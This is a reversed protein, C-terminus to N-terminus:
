EHQERRLGNWVQEVAERALDPAMKELAQNMQKLTNATLKEILDQPATEAGVLKEKFEPENSINVIMQLMMETRASETLLALSGEELGGGPGLTQTM